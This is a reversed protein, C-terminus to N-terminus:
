PEARSVKAVIGLKASDLHHLEDRRMRRRERLDYQTFGDGSPVTYRLDADVQLYRNLLLAVSGDVQAQTYASATAADFVNLLPGSRLKLAPGRESPPDKQTWALRILPQFRAANRLRNWQEQLGFQADPLLTIGAAALATTDDLAIAPEASPQAARGAEGSAYKDLFVILDVRYTEALAPRSLVALMVAFVSAAIWNKM